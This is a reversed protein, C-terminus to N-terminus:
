KLYGNSQLWQLARMADILAIEEVTLVNDSIIGNAQLLNLLRDVTRQDTGTVKFHQELANLVRPETNM